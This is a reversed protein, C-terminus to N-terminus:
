VNGCCQFTLRAIFLFHNKLYVVCLYMTLARYSSVNVEDWRTWRSAKGRGSSSWLLGTSCTYGKCGTVQQTIVRHLHKTQNMLGTLHLLHIFVCRQFDVPQSTHSKLEVHTANDWIKCKWNSSTAAAATRKLWKELAMRVFHAHLLKVLAYMLVYM